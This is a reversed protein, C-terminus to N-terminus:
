EERSRLIRAPVGAVIAFDPVDQTVVAGAGVIANSGVRVGPLISANMGIDAGYGIVVPKIVLGTAIIPVDVPHGTHTSGLLKAGPGWGVYDELELARADFYAQPGIWVHSGIKCTGDYRGQIMAQAGIFVADGFEMTEPHKFVSGPGVRLGHGARKCMARLLVRRMLYEFASEGERHRAYLAHLDEISHENRLTAAFEWEWAPDAELEKRGFTAAIERVALGPREFNDTASM